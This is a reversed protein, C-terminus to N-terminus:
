DEPYKDPTIIQERLIYPVPEECNIGFVDPRGSLFMREHPVPLRWIMSANGSLILYIEDGTTWDRFVFHHTIM